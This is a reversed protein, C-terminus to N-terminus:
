ARAARRGVKPHALQSVLRLPLSQSASDRNADDGSSEEGVCEREASRQFARSKGTVGHLQEREFRQEGSVGLQGLEIESKVTNSNVTNSNVTNSNVTNSNVTNSNVTNRRVVDELGGENNSRPVALHRSNVAHHQDIARHSSPVRHSSPASHSGTSRQPEALRQSVQTALPREHMEGSVPDIEVRWSMGRTRGPGRAVDVRLQWRQSSNESGMEMRADASFRRRLPQCVLQLDAWSPQGRVELPRELLGLTGGAEAALQFRRLWRSDLAGLSCWVAAVGSCRLAQDVAWREDELSRPQVWLLQDLSIGWPELAPPYFRQGRDVVVLLRGQRCVQRAMRLALPLTGSGPGAALWEVLSGSEIGGYPLAQDLTAFGSPVAVREVGRRESEFTRLQQRLARTVQDADSKVVVQSAELRSAATQSSEAQSVEDRANLAGLESAESSESADSSTQNESLTHGEPLVAEESSTKESSTKAPSAKKPMTSPLTRQAPAQALRLLEGIVGVYGFSIVPAWPEPAAVTASEERVSRGPLALSDGGTGGIAGEPRDWEQRNGDESPLARSSPEGSSRRRERQVVGVRTSPPLTTRSVPPESISVTEAISVTESISVPSPATARLEHVISAPVNSAPGAPTPVKQEEQM